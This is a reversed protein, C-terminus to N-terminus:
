TDNIFIAFWYLKNKLYFRNLAYYKLQNYNYQVFRIPANFSVIFVKKSIGSEKIINGKETAQEKVIPINIIPEDRDGTLGKQKILYRETLGFRDYVIKAQIDLDKLQNEVLKYDSQKIFFHSHYGDIYNSYNYRNSKKFTQELVEVYAYDGFFHKTVKSVENPDFTLNNPQYTVFLLVDDPKFVRNIFSNLLDSFHGNYERATQPKKTSPM